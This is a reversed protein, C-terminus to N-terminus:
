DEGKSGANERIEEQLRKEMERASYHGMKKLRENMAAVEIIVALNRGPGVPITIQPVKVRLIEQTEERLGLRDYNEEEGWEKLNIVLEVKSEHKVAGAGFLEKIDIVGLGRIEMCYKILKACRGM